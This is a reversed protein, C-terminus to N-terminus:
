FFYRFLKKVLKNNLWKSYKQCFSLLFFVGFFSFFEPFKYEYNRFEINSGSLLITKIKEM